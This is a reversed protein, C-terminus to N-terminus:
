YGTRWQNVYYSWLDVNSYVQEIRYFRDDINETEQALRFAVTMTGETSSQYYNWKEDLEGECEANDPPGCVIYYMGMPTKWGEICSTFCQNAQSVRQYYQVMKSLGGHTKWFDILNVKILSDTGGATIKRIENTAAIYDLSSVMDALNDFVQPFNKNHVTFKLSTTANNGAPDKALIKLLYNGRPPRPISGFVFSRKTAFHSVISQKYILITDIDRGCPNYAAPEYMSMQINFSPVNPEKSLLRHISFSVSDDSPEKSTLLTFFNLTDSLLGVDSLIFPTIKTSGGLTDYRALLMIDSLLIPKDSIEPINVSYSKSLKERSENDAISV